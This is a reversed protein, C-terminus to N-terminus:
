WKKLKEHRVKWFLKEKDLESRENKRIAESILERIKLREEETMNRKIYVQKFEEKEKLKYARSLLTEASTQSKM